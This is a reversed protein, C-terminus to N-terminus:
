ESMEIPQRGDDDATPRGNGKLYSRFCYLALKFSIQNTADTPYPSLFHGKM